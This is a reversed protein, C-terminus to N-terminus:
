LGFDWYDSTNAVEDTIMDSFDLGWDIDLAPGTIGEFLGSGIDWVPNLQRLIPSIYEDFGGTAIDIPAQIPTSSGTPFAEEPKIWSGVTDFLSKTGTSIDEWNGLLGLGAGLGINAYGLNRATKNRKKADEIMEQNMALKQQEVGYMQDRYEDQKKQAYLQPLFPTRANIEEVYPRKFKRGGSLAYMQELGM